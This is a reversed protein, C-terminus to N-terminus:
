EQRQLTRASAGHYTAFARSFAAPSSYGLEVAVRKLPKGNALQDRALRLRWGQVYEGPTQGLVRRFTAAFSSRSMASAAALRELSLDDGPREHILTLARALSPHALGALLGGYRAGEDILRRLVYVIVVETLRDLAAQHGCGPRAAESFLLALASHLADEEAIALAVFDPLGRELPNGPGGFDVAACVLDVGTGDARLDHPRRGPFLLVAPGEVDERRHGVSLRLRGARLLHIHGTPETDTDGFHAVGCLNGNYFVRASLRMHAFLSELRDPATAEPERAPPTHVSQLSDPVM